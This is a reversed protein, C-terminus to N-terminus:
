ENYLTKWFLHLGNIHYYNIVLVFAIATMQFMYQLFHIRKALCQILTKKITIIYAELVHLRNKLKKDWYYIMLMNIPQM